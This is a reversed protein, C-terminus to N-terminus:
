QGAARPPRVPQSSPAGTTVNLKYRLMNGIKSNIQQQLRNMADDFEGPYAKGPHVLMSKILEVDEHNLRKLGKLDNVQSVASAVLKDGDKDARSYPLTWGHENHFQRMRSLTDQLDAVSALMDTVEKADGTRSATAYTGDPLQVLNAKTDKDLFKIIRPDLQMGSFGVDLKPPQISSPALPATMPSSAPQAPIAQPPRSPPTLSPLGAQARAAAMYMSQPTAQPAPADSGSVFGQWNNDAQLAASEEPTLENSGVEPSAPSAHHEIYGGSSHGQANALKARASAVLASRAPTPAQIPPLGQAQRQLNINSLMVGRQLPGNAQLERTVTATHGATANESNVGAANKRGQWQANEKLTLNQFKRATAADREKQAELKLMAQAQDVKAADISSGYRSKLSGLGAAFTDMEDARQMREASMLDHGQQIYFSLQNQKKGLEAKQAAIDRDITSQVIQQAFNPTRAYAAGLAGFAQALAMMGQRFSGGEGSFIRNPDIKQKDISEHLNKQHAQNVEFGRAAGSHIDDLRAVHSEYERGMEGGFQQMQESQRGLADSAGTYWDSTSPDAEAAVNAVSPAGMGGAGRNDSGARASRNSPPPTAKFGRSPIPAEDPAPTEYELDSGDIKGKPAPTPRSTESGQAQFGAPAMSFGGPPTKGRTQNMFLDVVSGKPVPEGFLTQPKTDQPIGEGAKAGMAAGVDEPPPIAAAPPDVDVPGMAPSEYNLDSADQGPEEYHEEALETAASKEGRPWNEGVPEEDPGAHYEPVASISPASIPKEEVRPLERLRNTIRTSLPKLFKHLKEGDHVVFHTPHESHLRLKGMDFHPTAGRVPSKVVSRMM